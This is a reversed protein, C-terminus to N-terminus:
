VNTAYNRKETKINKKQKNTYPQWSPKQGEPTRIKPSIFITTTTTTTTTHQKHLGIIKSGYYLMAATDGARFTGRRVAM